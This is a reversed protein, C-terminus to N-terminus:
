EFATITMNEWDLKALYGGEVDYYLDVSDKGRVTKFKVKGRKTIYAKTEDTPIGALEILIINRNELIINLQLVKSDYIKGRVIHMVGNETIEVDHYDHIGVTTLMEEYTSIEGETFGNETFVTKWDGNDEVVDEVLPNSEVNKIDTTDNVYEVVIDDGVSDEKETSSGDDTLATYIVGVVFWILIFKLVKKKM